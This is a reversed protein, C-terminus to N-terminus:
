DCHSFPENAGGKFGIRLAMLYYGCRAQEKKSKLAPIIWGFIVNEKGSAEFFITRFRYNYKIFHLIFLAFHLISPLNDTLKKFLLM